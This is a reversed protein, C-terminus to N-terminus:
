ECDNGFICTSKMNLVRSQLDQCITKQNWDLAVVDDITAVLSAHVSPALPRAYVM